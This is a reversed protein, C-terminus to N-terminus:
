LENLIKWRVGFREEFHNIGFQRTGRFYVEKQEDIEPCYIQPQEVVLFPGADPEKREWHMGTFVPHAPHLYINGKGAVFFEQTINGVTRQVIHTLPLLLSRAIENATHLLGGWTQFRSDYEVRYPDIDMIERLLVNARNNYESQLKDRQEEEDSLKWKSDYEKVFEEWLCAWQKKAEKPTVKLYTKFTARREPSSPSCGYRFDPTTLERMFGSFDRLDRYMIGRVHSYKVGFEPRELYKWLNNLAEEEETRITTLTAIRETLIEGREPLERIFEDTTLLANM